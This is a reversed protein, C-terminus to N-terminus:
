SYRENSACSPRAKTASPWWRSALRTTRHQAAQVACREPMTCRVTGCRSRARTDRRPTRGAPGAHAPRRPRADATHTPWDISLICAEHLRKSGLYRSVTSRSLRSEKTSYHAQAFLCVVDGIECGAMNVCRAFRCVSVGVSVPRCWLAHCLCRRCVCWARVCCVCLVCVSVTVCVCVRM